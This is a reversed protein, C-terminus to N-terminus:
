LDILNPIDVKKQLIPEPAPAKVVPKATPVMDSAVTPEPIIVGIDPVPAYHLSELPAQMNISTIPNQQQSSLSSPLSGTPQSPHPVPMSHTIQTPLQQQTFQPQVAPVQLIQDGTYLQNQHENQPFIPPTQKQVMTQSPPFLSGTQQLQYIQPAQGYTSQPSLYPLSNNKEQSQNQYQQFQNYSAPSQYLGPQTFQMRLMEQEQKFRTQLIDDYLRGIAFVKSYLSQFHEIEHKENLLANGVKPHLLVLDSHLKILDGNLFKQNTPATQVKHIGDVFYVVNKEDQGTIYKYNFNEQQKSTEITQQNTVETQLLPQVNSLPLFKGDNMLNSYLGTSKQEPEPEKIKNAVSSSINRDMDPSLDQLSAQIAAKMDDDDDDQTPQINTILNSFAHTSKSTTDKLSLEIAKQIEDDEDQMSYKLNTSKGNSLNKSHRRKKKKKDGKHEYYCTDCVRVPISIGLEPLEINKDSHQGCFVGGCSRCHHKRNLFTFKKSCLMCADSDKWDPAVKSHVMSKDFVDTVVPFEFDEKQLLEYTKSIQEFKPDNSLMISWNQINELICQQILDNVKGQKLFVYFPNLFEKSMMQEVFNEGGNKICFDALRLASKQTNIDQADFFRDKILRMAEITPIQKSRIMDTVELAVAFDIEGNPISESTAREVKEQFEPYTSSTGFWAM